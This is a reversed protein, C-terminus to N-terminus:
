DRMAAIYREASRHVVAKGDQQVIRHPWPSYIRDFEYPEVAEVLHPWAGDARDRESARDAAGQADDV